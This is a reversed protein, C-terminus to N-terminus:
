ESYLILVEGMNVSTTCNYLKTYYLPFICLCNRIMPIAIVINRISKLMIKFKKFVTQASISFNLLILIGLFGSLFDFLLFHIHLLQAQGGCYSLKQCTSIKSLFKSMKISGCTFINPDKSGFIKVTNLKIGFM